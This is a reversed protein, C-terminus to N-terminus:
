ARKTERKKPRSAQCIRLREDARCASLTAAELAGEAQQKSSAAEVDTASCGLLEPM